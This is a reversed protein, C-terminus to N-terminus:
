AICPEMFSDLFDDMVGTIKRRQCLSYLEEVGSYPFFHANLSEFQDKNAERFVKDRTEDPAVIVWRTEIPPLADQYNKMRSLGSTVGTSHEIEFVAPMFRSNRFWIVDIMLAARSANSYASLLSLNNLSPIVGEMEGIKEGKYEISKDNQAVWVSSGLQKGIMLLALQIQAHRRKIEIDFEYDIPEPIALSDYVLDNSPIESIVIDTEAECMIGEQHPNDPCWMLHKHGQKIESTSEIIEIRKPYCYYFESTHALLAELASRTNFSAGLVRDIQIPSNQVFANAVRWLMKTSISQVSAEDVGKGKSPDYRKIKIPGEPYVVDIIAIKTSTTKNVYNYARDNPLRGIAHVFDAATIRM